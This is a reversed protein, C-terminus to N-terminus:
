VLLLRFLYQTHGLKEISSRHIHRYPISEEVLAIQSNRIGDAIEGINVVIPWQKRSHLSCM